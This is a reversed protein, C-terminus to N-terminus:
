KKRISRKQPRKRGLIAGIMSCVVTFGYLLLSLPVSFVATGSKVFLSCLFFLVCLLAGCLGGCPIPAAQHLRMSVIGGIMASLFRAGIGVWLTLSGGPNESLFCLGTGAFLFLIACAVAIVAGLCAHKFLSYFDSGGDYSHTTNRKKSVAGHSM